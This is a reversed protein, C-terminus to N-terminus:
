RRLLEVSYINEDKRLQKKIYKIAEKTAQEFSYMNMNSYTGIIKLNQDRFCIKTLSKAGLIKITTFLEKRLQEKPTVFSSTIPFLWQMKYNYSRM